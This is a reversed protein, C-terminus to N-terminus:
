SFIVSISFFHIEIVQTFATPGSGHFFFVKQPNCLESLRNVVKQWHILLDM